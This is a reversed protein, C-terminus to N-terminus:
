RGCLWRSLNRALTRNEGELFRNQFIADDGFAVFAGEGRPGSLVIDHQGAFEGPDSRGNRNLEIWAGPGTRALSDLTTLTLAALALAGITAGVREPIGLHAVAQGLAGAFAQGIARSGGSLMSSFAQQDYAACVLMASLLAMGTEGVMGGYAIRFGHGESALQKSTTGAAILSHWGSAAGCSITVFLVPWLPGKVSNFGVFAPMKMEPMGVVLGVLGLLLGAFLVASNLYDRPQLLIWM